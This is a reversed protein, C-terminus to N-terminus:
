IIHALFIVHLLKQVSFGCISFVLMGLKAVWTVLHGPKM